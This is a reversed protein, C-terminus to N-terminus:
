AYHWGQVPRNPGCCSVSRWFSHGILRASSSLCLHIVLTSPPHVSSFSIYCCLDWLSLPPCGLLLLLGLFLFSARPVRSSNPIRTRLRPTGEGKSMPGGSETHKEGGFCAMAEDSGLKQVWERCIWQLPGPGFIAVRCNAGDTPFNSTRHHVCYSTLAACFERPSVITALRNHWLLLVALRNVAWHAELVM